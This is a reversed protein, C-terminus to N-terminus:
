FPLGIGLQVAYNTRKPSVLNGDADYRIYEKNLWTFNRISLWGDNELRAPDKLKIGFDIRVLFYSFDFRLGTGVGIGVDKWTYFRKINFEGGPNNTDKVANWINGADAFFAGKIDVASFHAIPYRYEFNAEIQLDGYRDRFTSSTDSVLSSGQGLLRLGWARM